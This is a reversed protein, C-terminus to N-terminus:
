RRRERKQTAAKYPDHKGRPLQCITVVRRYPAGYHVKILNKSYPYSKREMPLKKKEHTVKRAKSPYSREKSPYSRAKSPYIEREKKENKKKRNRKKVNKYYELFNLFFYFNM